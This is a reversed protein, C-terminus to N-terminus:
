RIAQLLKFSVMALTKKKCIFYIEKDENIDTIWVASFAQIDLETSRLIM